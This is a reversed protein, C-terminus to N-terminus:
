NNSLLKFCNEYRFKTKFKKYYAYKQSENIKSLWLQVFHDKNRHQPFLKSITCKPKVLIKFKNLSTRVQVIWPHHDVNTQCLEFMLKYMLHNIRVLSCGGTPM